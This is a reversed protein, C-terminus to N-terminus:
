HRVQVQNPNPQLDTLDQIVAVHLQDIIHRVTVSASYYGLEDTTADTVRLEIHARTIHLKM